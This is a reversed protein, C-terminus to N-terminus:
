AMGSRYWDALLNLGVGLLARAHVSADRRGAYSRAGVAEPAAAGLVIAEVVQVVADGGRRLARRAGQLRDRADLVSARLDAPGRSGGGVGLAQLDAILRPEIRAQEWDRELREAAVIQLPQLDKHRALRSRVSADLDRRVYGLVVARPFATPGDGTWDRERSTGDATSILPLTRIDGRRLREPTPAFEPVGARDDNASPAQGEGPQRQAAQRHAKLRRRRKDARNM